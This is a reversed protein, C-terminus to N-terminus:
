WSIAVRNEAEGWDRDKERGNRSEREKSKIHTDSMGEKSERYKEGKKYLVRKRERPKYAGRKRERWLRDSQSNHNHGQPFVM